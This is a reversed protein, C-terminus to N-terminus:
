GVLSNGWFIIMISKNRTVNGVRKCQKEASRPHRTCLVVVRYLLNIIPVLPISGSVKETYVFHEVLQALYGKRAPRRSAPTTDHM